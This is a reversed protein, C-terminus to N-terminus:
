TQQEEMTLEGNENETISISLFVEGINDTVEVHDQEDLIDLNEMLAKIHARAADKAEELNDYHDIVSLEQGHNTAEYFEVRFYKPFIKAM